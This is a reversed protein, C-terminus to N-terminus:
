LMGFYERQEWDSVHALYRAYESRKLHLYWDVVPEGLAARFVDDADLADLAVGLNSPL